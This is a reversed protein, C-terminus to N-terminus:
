LCKTNTTLGSSDQAHTNRKNNLSNAGASKGCAGCKNGRLPHAPTSMVNRSTPSGIFMWPRKM